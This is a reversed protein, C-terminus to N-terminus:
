MTFHLKSITKIYWTEYNWIRVSKDSSCTAILPKRICVDLGLVQGNHFSQALTEFYIQDGDSQLFYNVRDIKYKFSNSNKTM